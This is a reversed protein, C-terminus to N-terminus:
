PSSRLKVSCQDCLGELYVTKRLVTFKKAIERPVEINDFAPHHFDLIRRCEICKFHQHTEVRGDFRKPEGSGEVILAAGIRSLMLLARSVTDLSITPMIKQVRRYVMEASPHEDTEILAKYVAKRQPTVKLGAKRCLAVLVEMGQDSQQQNSNSDRTQKM